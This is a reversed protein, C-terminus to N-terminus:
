NEVSMRHNKISTLSGDTDLIRVVKYVRTPSGMTFSGGAVQWVRQFGITIAWTGGGSGREFEVEELGIKEIPEDQYLERVFEKAQAIADKVEM